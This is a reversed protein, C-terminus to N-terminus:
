SVVGGTMAGGTNFRYLEKGSGADFALLNGATEATLRVSPRAVIASGRYPVAM